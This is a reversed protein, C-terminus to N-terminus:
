SRPLEVTFVSGGGPNADVAITGGMQEVLARTIYLGLGSGGVGRSMAPDLRYFKEFIREREGAPVGIGEDAVGIRVRDILGALRLEVHGGEPSYKVGNEALNLVVQRLRDEDCVIRALDGGDVVLSVHVNAPRWLEVARLVDECVARVDCAGPELRLEGADLVAADLIQEVIRGLRESETEIMALLRGSTEPPLTVDPRRLTRAAGYVSAIPTRLEHAATAVFDHRIRELVHEDTVDRLVVVRGEPFRTTTVALWREGGDVAVPVLGGAGGADALEPVVSAVTRGVASPEPVALVTEAAANWYRIVDDADALVVAERVHALARSARDGREAARRAEQERRYLRDLRPPVALLLGLAIGGAVLGTAVLFAVTRRFTSRQQDRAVRVLEVVHRELRAAATRFRDVPAKGTTVNAQAQRQGAPGSEVLEIQREFFAEVARLERRVDALASRLGPRDRALREIEALDVAMNARGRRYPGLSAQDGTIAFGRVGTEQNLLQVVLDRAAVRLPFAERVFREEATTQLRHTAFVAVGVLAALLVVLAALAGAALRRVAPAEDGAAM